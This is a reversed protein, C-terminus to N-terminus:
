KKSLSMLALALVVVGIALWWGGDGSDRGGYGGYERDECVWKLCEGSQTSYEKCVLRGSCKGMQGMSAMRKRWYPCQDRYPCWGAGAGRHHSQYYPCFGERLAGDSLAQNQAAKMMDSEAM